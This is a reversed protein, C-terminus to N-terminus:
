EARVHIEDEMLSSAVWPGGQRSREAVTLHDPSLSVKAGWKLLVMGACIHRLLGSARGM